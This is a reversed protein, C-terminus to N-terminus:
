NLATIQTNHKAKLENVLAIALNLQTRTDQLQNTLTNVDTKLENILTQENASYTADADASSIPNNTIAAAATVDATTITAQSRLREFLLAILRFFNLWPRTGILSGEKGPTVIAQSDVPARITAM